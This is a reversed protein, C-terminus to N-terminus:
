LLPLQRRATAARAVAIALGPQGIPGWVTAGLQWLLGGAWAAGRCQPRPSSGQSLNQKKKEKQNLLIGLFHRSLSFIM